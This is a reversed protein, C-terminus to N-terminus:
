NKCKKEALKYSRFDDTLKTSLYRKFKRRKSACAKATIHNFWPPKNKARRFNVPVFLDLGVKIKDEFIIWPDSSERMPRWNVNEIYNYLGNADGKHWEHVLETSSNDPFDFKVDLDCTTRLQM